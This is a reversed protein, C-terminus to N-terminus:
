FVAFSNRMLSQLESTHEESRTHGRTARTMVALTMAAMAGAGLAHIASSVPFAPRLIAGGLLILGLPLWAYSVHLVFVLPDRLARLGSWRALRAVQLAGAAVLLAGTVTRDSAAVWGALALATVGIVACDFRSAM